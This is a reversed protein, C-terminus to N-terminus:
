QPSLDRIVCSQLLSQGKCLQRKCVKCDSPVNRHRLSPKYPTYWLGSSLLPHIKESHLVKYILDSYTLWFLTYTLIYFVSLYPFSDAFTKM